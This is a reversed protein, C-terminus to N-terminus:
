LLTSTNTTLTLDYKYLPPMVMEIRHTLGTAALVEVNYPCKRRRSCQLYITEVLMADGLPRTLPLVLPYLLFFLQSSDVTDSLWGLGSWGIDWGLLVISVLLISEVIVFRGGTESQRLNDIAVKKM